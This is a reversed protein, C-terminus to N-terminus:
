WCTQGSGTETFHEPAKWHVTSYVTSLGLLAKPNRQYYSSVQMDSIDTDSHLAFGAYAVGAGHFLQVFATFGCVQAALFYM